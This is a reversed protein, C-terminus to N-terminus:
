FSAIIYRALKYPLKWIMYLFGVAIIFAMASVWLGWIIDNNVITMNLLSNFVGVGLQPLNDFVATHGIYSVIEGM